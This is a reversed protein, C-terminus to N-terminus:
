RDGSPGRRIATIRAQYADRLRKYYKNKSYFHRRKMGQANFISFRDVLDIVIPYVDQQKRLIRGVAQEVDGVPSGLILTNLSPIDLGEKAMAYTGFVVDKSESEKLEIEKKKSAGGGVYFGTTILKQNRKICMKDTENKLFNLHSILIM